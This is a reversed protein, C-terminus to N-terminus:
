PLADPPPCIDAIADANDDTLEFGPDAARARDLFLRPAEYQALEAPSMRGRVVPPLGLPQVAHVHEARVRLPERSTILIRIGDCAELLGAVAAAAETVQECNDLVILM